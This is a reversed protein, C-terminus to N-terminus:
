IRIARKPALVEVGHDLHEGFTDGARPTTAARIQVAILHITLHAAPPARTERRDSGAPGNRLVRVILDDGLGFADDYSRQVLIEGHFTQRAIDEQHAGRGPADATDLWAAHSDLVGM